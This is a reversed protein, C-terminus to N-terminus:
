ICTAMIVMGLIVIFFINERASLISLKSCLNRPGGPGGPSLMWPSGPGAPTKPSLPGDPGIPNDPLGPEMPLGPISPPTPVGPSLPVSFRTSIREDKLEM